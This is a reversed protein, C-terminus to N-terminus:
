RAFTIDVRAESFSVPTLRREREIDLAVFIPKDSFSAYESFSFSLGATEMESFSFSLGEADMEHILDRPLKTNFIRVPRGSDGQCPRDTCRTRRKRRPHWSYVCDLCGYVVSPKRNGSSNIIHNLKLIM